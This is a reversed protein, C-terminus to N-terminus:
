SRTALNVFPSLTNSGNRPTLASELWPRGDLRSTFRWVTEDNQFRVHPSSAMSLSQRDAVIYYGFDVFFLDGATGLTQCKESMVVPRGYLSMPAAGAMNSMMAASGGTGVSRSLAVLQPLTDPHAVWVARSRSSPLMRSYMKDVNEAVITTAAQGTEKAVTVLADANLIGVPQGGGVGNIFSDDEFYALAQPFIRMLLAELSIASDALLENAASTYATLKKATLTVRGFSPESSTYSGSEPTWYAQVGGFVNTAHTTDVISPMSLNLSSMPMRFARPRVVADELALSLLQTTFADPVLFGGQDGQGEGLVKLRADVGRSSITSPAMSSLFEGFSKFQGDMAVAERKLSTEPDVNESSSFAKSQLAVEEAMPPRSIAGSNFAEDMQDKVSTGVQEAVQQQIYENLSGENLMEELQAQTKIQDSM